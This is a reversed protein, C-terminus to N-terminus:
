SRDGAAPSIRPAVAPQAVGDVRRVNARARNHAHAEAEALTLVPSVCADTGEFQAAWEDRTRTAFRAAICARLAPWAGPDDRLAAEHPALGLGECLLRYFQPENAGVAVHRGDATAYTDYWPRGGDLSNAARQGDRWHGTAIRGFIMAMLSLAGDVMAADVVQGRGTTRARLLAALVGFALYLAGGGFDGILNLPPVPKGGTGIAHLAGALAIYNIDHGARPALPGQQGWGTMRGYVLRPNRAHCDAPGLGLREMVGPRFGELLIDAREVERLLAERGAASKLDLVLRGARGRTTVPDHRVDDRGEPGPREIRLVEAGHDALLMAAFPGPGISALEVVRVGQLTGGRDVSAVSTGAGPSGEPPAGCADGETRHGPPNM